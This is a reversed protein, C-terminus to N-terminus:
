ANLDQQKEKDVPAPIATRVPRVRKNVAERIDALDNTAKDFYDKADDKNTIQFWDGTATNVIYSHCANTIAELTAQNYNSPMSRVIVINKTPDIQENTATSNESDIWESLKTKLTGYASQISRIVQNADEDDDNAQMNAVEEDNNGSKRSRGTLYTKNQVDYVLESMYLTITIKKKAM